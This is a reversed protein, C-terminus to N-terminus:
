QAYAASDGEFISKMGASARVRELSNCGLEPLCSKTVTNRVNRRETQQILEIVFVYGNFM